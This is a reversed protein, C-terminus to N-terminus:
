ATAQTAYRSFGIEEWLHALVLTDVLHKQALAAMESATAHGRQDFPEAGPTPNGADAVLVAAGKVISDLDAAPGTDATYALPSGGQVNEVRMAWCPIYHVTPAFTLVADGISLPEGPTYEEIAFAGSFFSEPPETGSFAGAVGDLFRRGHPPMWLPLPRPARVPNYALAYRLAVLDLVHDAHVHSIVVGDLSRYDAHRRLEPFTGPGVDLMLRTSGTQVLYGSCGQGTNAGAASGGLVTLRM